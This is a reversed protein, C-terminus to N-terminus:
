FSETMLLHDLPNRDVPIHRDGRSAARVSRKVKGIDLRPAGSALAPKM